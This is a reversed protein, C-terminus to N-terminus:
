ACFFTYRRMWSCEEGPALSLAIFTEPCTTHAVGWLAFLLLPFDGGVRMGAGSPEHLLEWYERTDATYGTPRCYFATEPTARWRIDQGDVVLPEPVTALEMPFLLRLRYADPTFLGGNIAVFNHNYEHTAIVRTGVNQLTYHIQLETGVLTLTKLLRVAYGRCDVPHVDFVVASESCTVDVPFPQVPYQRMFSYPEADPKTLLGVGLKPFMEGVQADDYGIPAFIGFENCLGNVNKVSIDGAGPTPEAPTCFTHRGDLVVQTVAGTWDFRSGRYPNGPEAIEVQLRENQLRM